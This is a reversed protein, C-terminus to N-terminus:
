KEILEIRYKVVYESGTEENTKKSYLHGNKIDYIPQDRPLLLKAILQGSEKLVWWQYNKSAVGMPLAVWIRNEDDVFMRDIVPIEEPLEQDMEAFAKEIDRVKPSFLQSKIYENLDLPLGKIPYYISSQYVGKHDYKKILFNLTNAYYLVDEDSLSTISSGLFAVPMIPQTSPEVVIKFVDPLVIPEPYLTNGVSDMIQYEIETRGFGQRFDVFIGLFNGDKRPEVAAFNLESDIEWTEFLISRVFSYDKTSYENLRKSTDDLVFIKKLKTFVGGISGYEGPGKGRRGLKKNYTGDTNYVCLTQEYTSSVAWIIVWGNDDEVAGLTFAIYPEELDGYNQVPILEILHSPESEAPFVTLNELEQINQPIQNFIRTPDILEAQGKIEVDKKSIGKESKPNKSCQIFFFLFLLFNVFQRQM